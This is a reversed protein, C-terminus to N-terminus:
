DRANEKDVSKRLSLRHKRFAQKYRWGTPLPLRFVPERDVNLRYIVHNRFFEFECWEDGFSKIELVGGTFAAGAAMADVISGQMDVLYIHLGEDYPSSETLWLVAGGDALLFPEELVVGEVESSTIVDDRVLRATGGVGPLASLSYRPSKRM